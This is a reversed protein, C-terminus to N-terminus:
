FPFDDKPVKGFISDWGWRRFRMDREYEAENKVIDQNKQVWQPQMAFFVDWGFDGKLLKKMCTVRDKWVLNADRNGKCDYVLFALFTCAKVIEPETDAFHCDEFNIENFIKKRYIHIISCAVGRTHLTLGLMLLHKYLHKAWFYATKMDHTEISERTLVTLAALTDLDCNRNIELAIKNISTKRILPDHSAIKRQFVANQIHSNMNKFMVNAHQGIPLSVDLADWLMCCIEYSSGPSLEDVRQITLKNPKHRGDRYSRWKNHHITQGDVSSFSAADFKREMSYATTLDHRLRLANYWNITKLKNLEKRLGVKLDDFVKNQDFNFNACCDLLANGTSFVQKCDVAQDM